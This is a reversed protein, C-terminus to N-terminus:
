ETLNDVLVNFRPLKVAVCVFRLYAKIMSLDVQALEVSKFSSLEPMEMGRMDLAFGTVGGPLKNNLDTYTVAASGAAVVRGVFKRITGGSESRYINFYRATVGAAPTIAIQVADGDANITATVNNSASSEGRDSVATINYSYVETAIFSTGQAAVISAAGATPAAPSGARVRAPRTKASLFRSSEISMTGDAVFQEKLSAGTAHQPSGALVIREKGFAIKNYAAHTKPDLYLKEVEGNNMQSRTYVDEITSQQLVGNQPIVVSEDAGYEQLMLDYTSYDNDSRRIQPDLGVMGPEQQSMALPNGDFVGNNSYDAKGRFLQLEIDGALKIAADAEVRDDAKVGDFAQVLTAQLTVRRTHVYYAMPVIERVYTSTEEQGVAGELVASNGFIGYDLQRNFQVMTGKAPVTKFLKQLKIKSEDFTAVNMVSSLDEMQLASGQTLTGPAANMGGAELAKRLGELQEM